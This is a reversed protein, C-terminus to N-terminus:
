LGDCLELHAEFITGGDNRFEYDGRLQAVVGKVLRMGMSNRGETQPMGVGDDRVVLKSRGQEDAKSLAIYITGRRGEPFAYKLANTVIESLLLALPTAQDNGIKVDALEYHIGILSGYAVNVQDVITPVLEKASVVSYDDHKYIHEHMAAMAAFRSQLDRKAAEPIDQMRVLAQVSAMNNKVRHHIERFLLTLKETNRADRRLLIVIWWAGLGLGLLIPSVILLVTMINRIFVRWTEDTAVSAIAVMQTGEIARYSVVRAVGDVPSSESTYTGHASSKLYTTFLPLQSLDVPGDTAPYRAMLRGDDRILSITSGVGLDLTQWIDELLRDSYSVMIAGAFSGNREVRKSFVFIRDGTLRSVIGASTYFEEGAQLAAFYERDAVSVDAANSVTAFITNAQADIIYVEIVSPLGELAPKLVEPDGSMEPGLATDVRRLTQGALEAIWYADAAVVQAAAASREQFRQQTQGIGVAIFYALLAVFLALFLVMVGIAVHTASWGAWREGLFRRM